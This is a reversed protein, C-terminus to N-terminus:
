QSLRPLYYLNNTPPLLLLNGGHKVQFIILLNSCVQYSDEDVFEAGSGLVDLFSGTVMLFNKNGCTRHTARVVDQVKREHCRNQDKKPMTNNTNKDKSNKKRQKAKFNWGALLFYISIYFFPIGDVFFWM